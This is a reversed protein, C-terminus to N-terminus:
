LNSARMLLFDKTGCQAVVWPNGDPSRIEFVTMRKAAHLGGALLGLGGTLLGVGIGLAVSKGLEQARATDIEHFTYGELLWSRASFITFPEYIKKKKLDVTYTGEKIAGGIVKVQIKSMVM